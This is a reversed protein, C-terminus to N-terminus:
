IRMLWGIFDLSTPLRRRALSTWAGLVGCPGALVWGESLFRSRLISTVHLAEAAWIAAVGQKLCPGALAFVQVSGVLSDNKWCLLTLLRSAVQRCILLTQVM